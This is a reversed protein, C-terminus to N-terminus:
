QASLHMLAKRAINYTALDDWSKIFSFWGNNIQIHYDCWVNPIHNCIDSCNKDCHHMNYERPYTKLHGYLWKQQCKPCLLSISEDVFIFRGYQQYQDIQSKHLQERISKSMTPMEWLWVFKQILKEQLINKLYLETNDIKNTKEYTDWIDKSEFVIYWPYYQQLLSVIWVINAVLSERLHNIKVISIEKENQIQDRYTKLEQIMYKVDEETYYHSSLGILKPQSLDNTIYIKYLGIDDLFKRDIEWELKYHRIRKRLNHKANALIYNHHTQMDGNLFIKGDIVKAHDLKSLLYPNQSFDKKIFYRADNLDVRKNKIFYSPNKALIHTHKIHNHNRDKTDVEKSLQLWAPTIEYVEIASMDCATFGNEGIHYLWMTILEATGVDIGYSYSLKNKNYEINFEDWMETQKNKPVFSSISPPKTVDDSLNLHCIYRDQDYRNKKHYTVDSNKTSIYQIIWEPNIRTVFIHDSTDFGNVFHNRMTYYSRNNAIHAPDIEYSIIKNDGIYKNRISCDIYWENWVYCYKKINIDLTQYDSVWTFIMDILDDKNKPFWQYQLKTDTKLVDQYFDFILWREKLEQETYLIIKKDNIKKMKEINRYKPDLALVIGNMFTTTPNFCLKYLTRLTLSNLTYIIKSNYFFTNAIKNKIDKSDMDIVHITYVGNEQSICARDRLQQAEIKEKKYARIQANQLGAEASIYKLLNIFDEFRYHSAIDKGRTKKCEDIDNQKKKKDEDLIANNKQDWLEKIEQTKQYIEAYEPHQSYLINQITESQQYDSSLKFSDSIIWATDKDLFQMLWKKQQSKFVKMEEKLDELTKNKDIHYYKDVKGILGELTQYNEKQQPKSSRKLENIYQALTKTNGNELKKIEDDYLKWTKQITNYNFSFKKIVIADSSKKKLFEVIYKLQDYINECETQKPRIINTGGKHDLYVDNVIHYFFGFEERSILSQFVYWLNSYSPYQYAWQTLLRKEEVDVSGTRHILLDLNNYISKIINNIKENMINNSVIWGKLWKKHWSKQFPKHNYYYESFFYKVADKRYRMCKWQKQYRDIFQHIRNCANTMSEFIDDDNQFSDIKHESSPNVFFRVTKRVEYLHTFQDFTSM